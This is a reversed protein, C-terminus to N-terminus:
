KKGKEKPHPNPKGWTQKEKILEALQMTQENNIKELEKCRNFITQFMSRSNLENTNFGQYINQYVEDQSQQQPPKQQQSVDPMHLTQNYVKKSIHKIIPIIIM